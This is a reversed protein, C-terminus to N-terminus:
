EAPAPPAIITARAGDSVREFRSLTNTQKDRLELRDDSLIVLTYEHPDVDGTLTLVNGDLRYEGREGRVRNPNMTLTKGDKFTIVEKKPRSDVETISGDADVQQESVQLWHGELSPIPTTNMQDKGCAALLFVFLGVSLARLSNKLM